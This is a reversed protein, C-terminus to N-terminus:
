EARRWSRELGNILAVMARNISVDIGLTEAERVVAGNIVEIETKRKAEVDQLMSAKGAGGRALLAHITEIREELDIDHGLANAVRVAEATITDLLDLVPGPEGLEGARLRTLGSTPLTACNLILKKWVETKIRDSVTTEIGAATM